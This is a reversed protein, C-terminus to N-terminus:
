RIFPRGYRNAGLLEKARAETGTWTEGVKYERDDRDRFREIVVYKKPEPKKGEKVSDAPAAKAAAPKKPSAKSTSKKRTSM